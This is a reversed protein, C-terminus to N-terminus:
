PQEQIREVAAPVWVECSTRGDWVIRVRRPGASVVTGQRHEWDVYYHRRALKSRIAAETLKVRDGRVIM